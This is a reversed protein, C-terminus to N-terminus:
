LKQFRQHKLIWLFLIIIILLLIFMLYITKVYIIITHSYLYYFVRTGINHVYIMSTWLKM